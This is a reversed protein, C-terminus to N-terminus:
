DDKLDRKTLELSHKLDTKIGMVEWYPSVSKVFLDRKRFSNSDSIRTKLKKGVIEEAEQIIQQLSYSQGSCFNIETKEKIEESQILSVLKVIGNIVDEIWIYDRRSLLSSEWAEFTEGRIISNVVQGVLTETTPAIINTPRIIVYKADKMRLRILQECTLKSFGYFTDPTFTSQETIVEDHIGFVAISSFFIIGRCLPNKCLKDIVLHTALINNRSLEEGKNSKKAAAHIVLYEEKLDIEPYNDKALDFSTCLVYFGKEELAKRLRRGVMGKSGTLIINM